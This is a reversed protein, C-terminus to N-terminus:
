RRRHKGHLRKQVWRMLFALLRKPQALVAPQQRWAEYDRAVDEGLTKEWLDAIADMSYEQSRQRGNRVMAEYRASDDRLSEVAQVAEDTTVVECYDLASKRLHRYSPEPGLLAPCGARWANILKSPPKAGLFDDSGDRVALVMDLDTYDVWSNERIVLEVGIRQLASRFEPTRFRAALNQVNGLYGVRSVACGRRPDRPMLGVQPWLPIYAQCPKPRAPPSQVIEFDSLFTPGRDARIGVVYSRFCLSRATVEDRFAVCIAGPVFRDVLRVDHGRQRLMLYTPVIWVDRGFRLQAALADMNVPKEADATLSAWKGRAQKHVFYVPHKLKM